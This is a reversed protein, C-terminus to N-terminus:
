PSHPRPRLRLDIDELDLDHVRVEGHLLPLLSLSAGVRRADIQGQETPTQGDAAVGTLELRLPYLSWAYRWTVQFQEPQLTNLLTRTAPLNLATNVAALYLAVLLLLTLTSRTILRQLM